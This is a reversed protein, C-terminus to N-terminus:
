YRAHPSALRALDRVCARVCACVCASPCLCKVCARAFACVCAPPPPGVEGCRAALDEENLPLNWPAGDGAHGFRHSPPYRLVVGRSGSPNTARQRPGIGNPQCRQHDADTCVLAMARTGRSLVFHRPVASLYAGARRPACRQLVLRHTADADRRIPDRRPSAACLPRRRAACRMVLMRVCAAAAYVRPCLVAQM